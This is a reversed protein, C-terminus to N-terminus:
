QAAGVKLQQPGQAEPTTPEAAPATHANAPPAPAATPVPQQQVSQAPSAPAQAL